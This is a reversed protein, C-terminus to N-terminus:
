FPACCTKPLRALKAGETDLADVIFNVQERSIINFNIVKRPTLHYFFSEGNSDLFAHDSKVLYIDTTARADADCCLLVNM